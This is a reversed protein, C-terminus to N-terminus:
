NEDPLIWKKHEWGDEEKMLDAHPNILLRGPKGNLTVYVEARVRPKSMGRAAYHAGLFHAFQLIMDPQMAM